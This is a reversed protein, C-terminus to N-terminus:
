ALASVVGLQPLREGIAEVTQRDSRDDVLLDKAHVPTERGLQRVHLLDLAKHTGRVDGVGTEHAVEQPCVRLRLREAPALVVAAHRERKAGVNHRLEQFPM